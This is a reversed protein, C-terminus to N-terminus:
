RACGTGDPSAAGTSRLAGEPTFLQLCGEIDDLDLAIAYATLLDDIQERDSTM